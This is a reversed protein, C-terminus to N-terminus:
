RAPTQNELKWRMAARIRNAGSPHDYFIVEELWGPSIKRYESLKLAAEAFGDPQRAVNLGFMDAEVETSRIISNIAPTAFSTMLTFIAALMPLSAIDALSNVGWRPGCVALLRNSGWYTLWFAFLLVFTIMYLDKTIHNLVYHGMEHGMVAEIEPQSSRKLLNDNLSIRATGFLGSVNASIRKSQKSADFQYVEAAPIGNARAMRLVADRVQGPDLPRYTNFLPAVFVPMIMFTFMMLVFSVFTGWAWWTRPARRIVAYICILFVTGFVLGLGAGKLSDALWAGFNQNSLSYKHERFFGEYLNMPFNLIFVAVFYGAVFLSDRLWQMRTRAHVWNRLRVAFGSAMLLWGIGVALLTDWLLLWYGGEFYANSTAVQEPTMKALYSQVAAEIASNTLSV